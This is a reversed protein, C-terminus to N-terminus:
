RVVVLRVTQRAVGPATLRVFYLGARAVTGDAGADWRVSYRGPELAGQVLTATRRGNVDFVELTVAGPRALDFRVTGAGRLPNPYPAHLRTATPVQATVGTTAGGRVTASLAVDLNALPTGGPLPEDQCSFRLAATYASDPTAGAPDFVVSFTHGTAAM